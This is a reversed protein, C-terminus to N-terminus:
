TINQAYSKKHPCNPLASKTRNCMICLIQIDKPYNHSRLWYYLQRGNLDPKHQVNKRGSVHDITLATINDFGCCICKPKGKSYHTFVENKLRALKARSMVNEKKMSLSKQKIEFHKLWNCNMCLTQYGEPFDHEILYKVLPYSGRGDDLKVGDIHDITLFNLDKEKCFSCSPNSTISYYSLVVIRKDLRKAFKEASM